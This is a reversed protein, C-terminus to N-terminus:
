NELERIGCRSLLIKKVQRQMIDIPAEGYSKKTNSILLKNDLGVVANWKHFISRLALQAM